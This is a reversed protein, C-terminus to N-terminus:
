LTVSYYYRFGCLKFGAKLAAAESAPNTVGSYYPIQGQNRKSVLYQSALATGIGQSRNQPSVYIFVVDWITDIEPCCSLYGLLVNNEDFYGFIEGTKQLTFISFAKSLQIMNRHSEEAFAEVLSVDNKTLLRIHKESIHSSVTGEYAFTKYVGKLVFNEMEFEEANKLPVVVKIKDRPKDIFAIVELLLEADFNILSILSSDSYHQIIAFATEAQNTYLVYKEQLITKYENFYTLKDSRLITLLKENDAIKLYKEGKRNHAFFM